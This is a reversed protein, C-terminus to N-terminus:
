FGFKVFFYVVLLTVWVCIYDGYLIESITRSKKDIKMINVTLNM